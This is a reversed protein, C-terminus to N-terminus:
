CGRRSQRRSVRSVMYRLQAAYTTLKEIGTNHPETINIAEERLIEITDCDDKFTASQQDFKSEIYNKIASSIDVSQARRFPIELINSTM